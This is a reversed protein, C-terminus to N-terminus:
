RRSLKSYNYKKDNNGALNWTLKETSIKIFINELPIYM